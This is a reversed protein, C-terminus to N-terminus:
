QVRARFFYFSVKTKRHRIEISSDSEGSSESESSSGHKDIEQANLDSESDSTAADSLRQQGSTSGEMDNSDLDRANREM